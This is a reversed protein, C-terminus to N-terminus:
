NVKKSVTSSKKEQIEQRMNHAIKKIQMLSNRVRTGAAGNDHNYFKDIDSELSLLLEKMQNYSNM